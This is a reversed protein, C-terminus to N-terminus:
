EVDRLTKATGHWNRTVRQTVKERHDRNHKQTEKGKHRKHNRVSPTVSRSSKQINYGIEKQSPRPSEYKFKNDLFFYDRQLFNSAHIFCGLAFLLLCLMMERCSFFLQRGHAHEMPSTASSKPVASNVRDVGVKSASFISSQISSSVATIWKM